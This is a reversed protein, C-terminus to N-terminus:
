KTEEQKIFGDQKQVQVLENDNPSLYHKTGELVLRLKGNDRGVNTANVFTVNSPYGAINGTIKVTYYTNLDEDKM